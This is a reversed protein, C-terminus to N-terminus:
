LAAQAQTRLDKLAEELDGAQEARIIVPPEGIAGFMGITLVVIGAPNREVRTLLEGRQSAIPLKDTPVKSLDIKKAKDAKAAKAPKTPEPEPQATTEQAAEVPPDEDEQEPDAPGADVRAFIEKVTGESSYGLKEAWAQVEPKPANGKPRSTEEPTTTEDAGATEIFAPADDPAKEAGAPGISM